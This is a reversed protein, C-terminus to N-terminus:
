NIEMFSPGSFCTWGFHSLPHPPPPNATVNSATAPQIHELTHPLLARRPIPRRCAQQSAARQEGAHPTLNSTARTGSSSANTIWSLELHHCTEHLLLSAAVLCLSLASRHCVLCCCLSQLPPKTASGTFDDDALSDTADGSFSLDSKPPRCSSVSLSSASHVLLLCLLCLSLASRHCVLCLPATRLKNNNIM